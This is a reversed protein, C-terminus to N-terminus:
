YQRRILLLYIQLKLGDGSVGENKDAERYIPSHILNDGVAIFSVESTEEKKKIVPTEKPKTLNLYSMFAIAIVLILIIIKKM